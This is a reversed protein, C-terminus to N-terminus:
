LEYYAFMKFYTGGSVKIYNYSILVNDDSNDHQQIIDLIWGNTM